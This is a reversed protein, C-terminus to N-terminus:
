GAANTGKLTFTDGYLSVIRAPEYYHSKIGAEKLVRAEDPNSHIPDGDVLLCVACVERSRVWRREWGILQGRLRILRHLAFLTAGGFGAALAWGVVSM